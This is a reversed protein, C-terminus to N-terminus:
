LLIMFKGPVLLRVERLAASDTIEEVIPGYTKTDSTLDFLRATIQKRKIGSERVYVTLVEYDGGFESEVEIIIQLLGSREPVWIMSDTEIGFRRLTPITLTFDKDKMSVVREPRMVEMLDFDNSARIRLVVNSLDECLYNNVSWTLIVNDDMRVQRPCDTLVYLGQTSPLHVPHAFSLGSKANLSFGTAVWTTYPKTRPLDFTCTGSAEIKGTKFFLSRHYGVRSQEELMMPPPMMTLNSQAIYKELLLRAEDRVGLSKGEVFSVPQEPFWTSLKALNEGEMDTPIRLSDFDTIITLGSQMFIFAEESIENLKTNMQEYWLLTGFKPHEHSEEGERRKPMDANIALPMSTVVVERNEGVSVDYQNLSKELGHHDHSSPSYRM